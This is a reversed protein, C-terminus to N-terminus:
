FVQGCTHIDKDIGSRGFQKDVIQARQRILQVTGKAYQDIQRIGHRIDAGIRFGIAIVHGVLFRAVRVAHRFFAFVAAIDFAIVIRAPDDAIDGHVNCQIHLVIQM